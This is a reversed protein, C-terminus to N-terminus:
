RYTRGAHQLWGGSREGQPDHHTWHVVGGRPNWEYQGRFRVVDGLQLGELRPALDINHSLLVQHGSDMRLIFRQHRAGELDDALLRSIIGDAEVMAGSQQAQFLREIPTEAIIERDVDRDAIWGVFLVLAACGLASVLARPRSAIMLEYALFV